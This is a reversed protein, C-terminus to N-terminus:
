RAERATQDETMHKRLRGLQTRLSGDYVRSGVRAVAGGLIAPEVTCVLRVRLGSTRELAAELRTRLEATLPTATTVEAPVIGAAEECLEHFVQSISTLSSLRNREVLLALFNSVTEPLQAAPALSRLAKTRAQRPVAPDFLSARLQDSTGIAEALTRLFTDVAERQQPERFVALLARAYRSALKRDRM